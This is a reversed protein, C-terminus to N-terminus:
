PLEIPDSLLRSGCTADQQLRVNLSRVPHYWCSSSLRPTLAAGHRLCPFRDVRRGRRRACTGSSDCRLGIRISSARLGLETIPHRGAQYRIRPRGPSIWMHRDSCMLLSAIWLETEPHRNTKSRGHRPASGISAKEGYSSSRSIDANPHCPAHQGQGRSLSKGHWSGPACSKASPPGSVTAPRRRAGASVILFDTSGCDL